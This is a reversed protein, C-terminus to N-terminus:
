DNTTVGPTYRLEESWTSLTDIHSYLLKSIEVLPLAPTPGSQLQREISQQLESLDAVVRQVATQNTEFGRRARLENMRQRVLRLEFLALQTRDAELFNVISQLGSRIASLDGITVRESIAEAAQQAAVRAAVAASAAEQARQRASKAEIFTFVLGALTVITGAITFVINTWDIWDRTQM